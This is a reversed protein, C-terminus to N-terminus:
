DGADSSLVFHGVLQINEVGANILRNLQWRTGSFIHRIQFM